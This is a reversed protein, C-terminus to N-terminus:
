SRTPEKTSWPPCPTMSSRPIITQSSNSAPRKLRRLCTQDKDSCHKRGRRAKSLNRRRRPAAAAGYATEAARGGAVVARGGAAIPDAKVIAQALRGATGPLRASAAAGGTLVGGVDLATGVPDTRLSDAIEDFGGYRDSYHQGVARAAPRHEGFLGPSPIGLADKLLQGGGMAASGLSGGHRASQIGSAM